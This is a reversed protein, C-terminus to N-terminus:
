TFAERFTLVFPVVGGPTFSSGQRDDVFMMTTTPRRLTIAAANAPSARLSPGFALTAAGVGDTTVDATLRYIYGGVGFLDGAKLWGTTSIPGGSVALSKGVQGAGAVVPSGGGVGSPREYGFSPVAVRGARGAMQQLFAWLLRANDGRAHSYDLVCTWYGGPIEQTQVAGSIPAEHVQTLGVFTWEARLPTITLNPWALTTM